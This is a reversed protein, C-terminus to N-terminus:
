RNIETLIGIYDYKTEERRHYVMKYKSDFFSSDIYVNQGDIQTVIPLAEYNINKRSTRYPFFCLDDSWVFMWYPVLYENDERITVYYPEQIYTTFEEELYEPLTDVFCQARSYCIVDKLNFTFFDIVKQVLSNPYRLSIWFSILPTNFPYLKPKYITSGTVSYDEIERSLVLIMKSAVVEPAIMYIMSEETAYPYFEKDLVLQIGIDNPDAKLSDANHVYFKGESISVVPNSSQYTYYRENTGSNLCFYVYLSSICVLAMIIGAFGILVNIFIRNKKM